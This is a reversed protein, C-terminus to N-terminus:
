DAPLERCRWTTRDCAYKERHPCEWLFECRCSSFPVCSGYMGNVISALTGPACDPEQQSCRLDTPDCNEGDDCEGIHAYPRDVCGNPRHFTVGDCGCYPVSDMPCPHPQYHPVCEWREDCSLGFCLLGDACPMSGSCAMRDDADPQYVPGFVDACVSAETTVDPAVDESDETADDAQADTSGTSVDTWDAPGGEVTVVDTEAGLSADADRIDV